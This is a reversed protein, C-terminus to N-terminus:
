GGREFPWASSRRSRSGDVARPLPEPGDASRSGTASAATALEVRTRGRGPERPARPARPTSARRPRRRSSTTSTWGRSCRLRRRRSPRPRTAAARVRDLWGTDFEGARVDPGHRASRAPLGTPPAARSWSRPRPLARRLRALAEDRDEGLRDAQRDDLRVRGPDSDGEAVGSDVRIGPGGPLRLSARDTGAGPHLRAGSGRRQAAGRDRPRVPRRTARSGAARAVQLQLKVLDLGTTVETVPHEVQLRTNVEM